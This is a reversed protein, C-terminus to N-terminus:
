AKGKKRLKCYPAFAKLGDDIAKKVEHDVGVKKLLESSGEIANVAEDIQKLSGARAQDVCQDGKTKTPPPPVDKTEQAAMAVLQLAELNLKKAQAARDNYFRQEPTVEVSDPKIERIHVNPKVYKPVSQTQPDVIIPKRLLAGDMLAKLLQRGITQETTPLTALDVMTGKGEESYGSVRLDLLCVVGAPYNVWDRAYTGGPKAKQNNLLYDTQAKNIRLYPISGDKFVSGVPMDMVRTKDAQSM